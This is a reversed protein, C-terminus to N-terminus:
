ETCTESFKPCFQFAPKKRKKGGKLAVAQVLFLCVFLSSHTRCRAKAISGSIVTLLQLIM